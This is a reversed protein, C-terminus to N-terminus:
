PERWQSVGHTAFAVHAGLVGDESYYWRELYGVEIRRPEGLLAKVSEKTMDRKLQRWRQKDPPLTTGMMAGAASPQAARLLAELEAIRRELLTIREEITLPEGPEQQRAERRAETVPALSPMAAPAIALADVTGEKGTYPNINGKTSYNDLTSKNPTTRVHPAVYTGDKRIHGKVTTTAAHLAPAVLVVFLLPLLKKM